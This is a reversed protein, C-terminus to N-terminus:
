LVAGMLQGFKPMKSSLLKKLDYAWRIEKKSKKLYLSIENPYFIRYLFCITDFVELVKEFWIDFSQSLYRPVNDRGKQLDYIDIGQAHVHESLFSYLQLKKLFTAEDVKVVMDNRSALSKALEEIKIPSKRKGQRWQEYRGTPQDYHASFYVGHIVNEFWCRLVALAQRYFGGYALYITALLDTQSELWLEGVPHNKPLENWLAFHVLTDAEVLNMLISTEEQKDNLSHYRTGDRKSVDTFYWDFRMFPDQKDM